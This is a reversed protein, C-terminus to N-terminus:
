CDLWLKSISSGSAKCVLIIECSWNCILFIIEDWFLPALRKQSIMTLLFVFTSESFCAANSIAEEALIKSVRLVSLRHRTPISTKIMQLAFSKWISLGNSRCPGTLLEWLWLPKHVTYVRGTERWQACTDKRRGMGRFRYKICDYFKKIPSVWWETWVEMQWKSYRRTM